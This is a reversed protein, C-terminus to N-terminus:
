KTFANRVTTVLDALTWEYYTLSLPGFRDCPNRLDERGRLVPDEMEEDTFSQAGTLRKRCVYAEREEPRMLVLPDLQWIRATAGCSATLVRRSPGFLRTQPSALTAGIQADWLGDFLVMNKFVTFESPNLGSPDTGVIGTIEHTGAATGNTV